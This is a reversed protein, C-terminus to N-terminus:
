ANYSFLFISGVVYFIFALTYIASVLFLRWCKSHVYDDVLWKIGNLGHFLALTLLIFDYARWGIGEFRQKVFEAAGVGDWNVMEDVNFYVHMIFLHGLAMLLLVVGSIRMFYWSYMEFGGAPKARGGVSFTTKKWM